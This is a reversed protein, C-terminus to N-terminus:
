SAHPPLGKYRSVYANEVQEAFKELRIPSSTAPTNLDIQGTAPDWLILSIAEAMHHPGDIGVRRGLRELTGIM